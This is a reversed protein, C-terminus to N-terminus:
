SPLKMVSIPARRPRLPVARQPEHGILMLRRALQEATGEFPVVACFALPMYFSACAATVRARLDRSGIVLYLGMVMDM